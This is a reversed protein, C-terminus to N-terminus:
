KTTATPGPAPAYYDMGMIRRTVAEVHVASQIPPRGLTGRSAIVEGCDRGKRWSGLEVM